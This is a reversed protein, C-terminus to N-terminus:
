RTPGTPPSSGAAWGSQRIAAHHVLDEHPAKPPRSCSSTSGTSCPARASPPLRWRRASGTSISIPPRRRSRSTSGSCRPSSMTSGCGRRRAASCIIIAPSCGGRRARIPRRVPGARSPVGLADLPVGQSYLMRYLYHDPALLLETANPGPRTPRSGPRIPIATRASSRCTRRGRCLPARAIARMSPDAPFLRDPDLTLPRPM